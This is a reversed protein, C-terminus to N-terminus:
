ATLRGDSSSTWIDDPFPDDGRPPAAVKRDGTVGRAEDRLRQLLQLVPSNPPLIMSKKQGPLFIEELRKALGIIPIKTGHEELARLAVSLQGKGGDIVLLGPTPWADAGGVHNLRRQLMQRMMAFDNPTEQGLIKFKRYDNKKPQGNEFVVMSGVPLFGQINSIDYAEIRLPMAPLNLAKQLQGLTAEPTAYNREFYDKANEEGLKLLEAKKGRRPVLIKTKLWRHLLSKNSIDHPIYIEKPTDSADQYYQELFAELIKSKPEGANAVEFHEQHIIKGERVGFLHVISRDPTTFISFFDAAYPKTFVIKQREWISRLARARDRLGAAKEFRKQAAAEAMQRVLDRLIPGQRHSLFDEITKFGKRYEPLSVEGICVGPCRGLHYQFCPKADVKKNACLFFLRKLLKLTQQVALGSTYPGFYKAKKERTLHRVSYIQPIPTSYDIKIFQYNKDDRMRVNFRPRYRKIFNNELMLSELENSVIVYDLDAIEERLMATKIEAAQGRFYSQVRNRLKKAKGVYIVEGAANKFFYVGPKLPLTKLKKSLENM